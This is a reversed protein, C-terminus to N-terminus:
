FLYFYHYVHYISIHLYVSLVLRLLNLERFIFNLYLGFQNDWTVLAGSSVIGFSANFYFGFSLILM